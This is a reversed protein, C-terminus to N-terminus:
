QGGSLVQGLSLTRKLGELSAFPKMVGNKALTSSNDCTNTRFCGPKIEELKQRAREGKAMIYQNLTFRRTAQGALLSETALKTRTSQRKAPTVGPPRHGGSGRPNKANFRVRLLGAQVAANGGLGATNSDM